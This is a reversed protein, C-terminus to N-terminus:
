SASAQLIFKLGDQAVITLGQRFGFLYPRSLHNLTTTEESVQVWSCMDVCM